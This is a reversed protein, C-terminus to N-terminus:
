RCNNFATSLALLPFLHNCLISVNWVSPNMFFLSGKLFSIGFAVVKAGAHSLRDVLEALRARPWPWRGERHLSKEDIVALIVESPQEAVARSRFRLDVTKLEMLEFFPFHMIYLVLVLFLGAVALLFPREFFISFRKLAQEGM